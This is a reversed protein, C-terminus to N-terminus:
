ATKEQAIRPFLINNELHIHQFMDSELEELQQYTLSYTRCTDSPIFYDRTINRLEKLIDGSADHESELTEIDKLLEDLSKTTRDKEYAEIKPFINVEEEILHHELEGKLKNFLRHVRELEPHNKGHVRYIKAVLASLEPLVRHLYAHHTQVVYDMLEKYSAKTWDIEQVTNDNKEKYLANLQNMFHDADIQKEELVEGIPRDGGCCFDIKYEKFLQSAMPFEVVIDGTKSNKTIM